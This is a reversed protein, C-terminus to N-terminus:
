GVIKHGQYAEAGLLVFIAFEHWGISKIQFIESDIFLNMTFLNETRWIKFFNSCIRDDSPLFQWLLNSIM